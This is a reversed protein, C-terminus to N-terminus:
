RRMSPIGGALFGVSPGEGEKLAQLEKAIQANLKERSLGLDLGHRKCLGELLGGLEASANEVPTTQRYVPQVIFSWLVSQKEGTQEVYTALLRYANALTLIPTEDRTLFCKHAVPDLQVFEGTEDNQVRYGIIENTNAM